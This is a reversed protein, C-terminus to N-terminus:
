PRLQTTRQPDESPMLHVRPSGNLILETVNLNEENTQIDLGTHFLDNIDVNDWIGVEPKLEDVYYEDYFM